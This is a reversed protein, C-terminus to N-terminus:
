AAGDGAGAAEGNATPRVGARLWGRALILAVPTVMAIGGYILWMTETRYPGGAPCYRQLFWGAYLGTLFKTLFWPFQGIGVYAGARGPPALETVYHYFRPQWMSEGVTMLVIFAFLAAPSPGLVLLFTPLAMVLTGWQMMDLPDKKATLAAVVPALLFVLLPSLNSFLEFRSSVWPVFARDIYLPLTLWNHAFLTQVPILIFVFFAFRADRLPHEAVWRASFVRPKEGASAAAELAASAPRRALAEKVLGPTLLLATVAISVFTLVAYLAYVGQIGNPPFANASAERVIPSLFGALFAGLNNLGYIVGFAVASTSPDSYQKVASFLAPQFTGFGVVVVLLGLATVLFAPSALGGGPLRGAATLLVRGVAMVSISLLLVRRTGFRDGLEGLFFMAFTIGGTFLSVVIGARVDGLGLNESLLKMLLTLVGFYSIGELLYPVNLGWLARPSSFFARTTTKLEGLASRIATSTNTM